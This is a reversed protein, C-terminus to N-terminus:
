SSGLQLWVTGHIRNAADAAIETAIGTDAAVNQIVITCTAGSTMVGFHVKNKSAIAADAMAVDVHAAIIATAAVNIAVSFKGVDLRTVVVGRGLTSAAAVASSGNPAFSFPVVVM